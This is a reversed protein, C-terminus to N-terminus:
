FPKLYKFLRSKDSGVYLKVGKKKLEDRLTVFHNRATDFNRDKSLYRHTNFDAGYMVIEDASLSYAVACAVFTSNNSAPYLYPKNLNIQGREPNLSIKRFMKKVSWAPLHSYFVEPACDLITRLRDTKFNEPADICVVFPTKVKSWIDNVGIAFTFKSPDYASLSEGLGLVAVKM